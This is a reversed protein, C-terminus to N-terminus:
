ASLVFNAESPKHIHWDFSLVKKLLAILDKFELPKTIYLSAGMTFSKSIVSDDNSTSFIVVPLNKFKEFARIEFLVEFGNKGPMNLDLFIVNPTPPPNHLMDLLAQGSNLLHLEQKGDLTEVAYQFLEQDDPDDDTYFITPNLNM